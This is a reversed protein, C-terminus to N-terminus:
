FSRPKAGYLLCRGTGDISTKAKADESPFRYNEAFRLTSRRISLSYETKTKRLNEYADTYTIESDNVGVSQAGADTVFFESVGVRKWIGPLFASDISEGNKFRQFSSVSRQSEFGRPKEKRYFSGYAPSVSIVMFNDEDKEFCVYTIYDGGLFIVLDKDHGTVM